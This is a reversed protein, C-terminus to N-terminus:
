KPKKARIPFYESSIKLKAEKVLGNENPNFVFDYYTKVSIFKDYLEILQEQLQTNNLESLYKKLDRKSM